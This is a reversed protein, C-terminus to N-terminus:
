FKYVVAVLLAVDNNKIAATPPRTAYTDLLELKLQSRATLAAAAGAAFTYLADGWDDVDWIAGFSQIVTSTPSLKFEFRDGSTVVASTRVDFGPNKEWKVGFGADAALTTRPTAVLKYGLGGSPALHYDISKFHDRLYPLQAFAFLRATLKREYRIQAFLRSASLEGNTDGRLYLAGMKWVDKQKPDRTADFAFNINTTDTNGRNLTAGLGASGTWVPPTTPTPPCPCAPTQAPQAIAAVPVLLTAVLVSLAFETVVGACHVLLRDNRTNLAIRM